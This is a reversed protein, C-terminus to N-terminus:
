CDLSQAGPTREMEIVGREFAQHNATLAVTLADPASPVGIARAGRAKEIFHVKALIKIIECFCLGAIEHFNEPRGLHAAGFVSVRNDIQTHLFLKAEIVNAEPRAVDWRAVAFLTHGPGFDDM